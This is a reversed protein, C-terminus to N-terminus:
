LDWKPPKGPEKAEWEKAGFPAFMKATQCVLRCPTGNDKFVMNCSKGMGSPNARCEGYSINDLVAHIGDKHWPVVKQSMQSRPRHAEHRANATHTRGGKVKVDM